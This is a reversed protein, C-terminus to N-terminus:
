QYAVEYGTIKRRKISENYALDSRSHFTVPFSKANTYLKIGYLLKVNLEM